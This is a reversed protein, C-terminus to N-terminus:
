EDEKEEPIDWGDDCGGECSHEEDLVIADKTCINDKNHICKDLFCFVETM